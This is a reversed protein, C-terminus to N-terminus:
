LFTAKRRRIRMVTLVGNIYAGTDLAIRSNVFEPQTVITHGHVVTYPLRPGLSLFPERIWMLHEDSQADLPVEPYVGAHVFLYDPCLRATVPLANLFAVHRAPVRQVVTETLRAPKRSLRAIEYPSMGYSMLTERGGISLWDIPNSKGRLVSLFMDDHNGCLMIRRAGPFESGTLHDLVQASHAGRDVYDGLYVVYNAAEGRLPDAKIREEAQLLADLCGHIDPIVYIITDFPDLSSLDIRRRQFSGGGRSSAGRDREDRMGKAEGPKVNSDLPRLAQAGSTETRLSDDPM